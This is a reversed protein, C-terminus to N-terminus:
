GQFYDQNRERLGWMENKPDASVVFRVAGSRVLLQRLEDPEFGGMHNSLQEFSRKRWNKTQLLQRLAEEAMFETRLDSQLRSELEGKIRESQSRMESEIKAKQLRSSLFASVAATVLAFVSTVLAVVVAVDM